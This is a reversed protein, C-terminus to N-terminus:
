HNFLGQYAIKMTETFEKPSFKSEIVEKALKTRRELEAPADKIMTLCDKLAQAFAQPQPDALFTYEETMVQTHSIINTAVCPKGSLMYSYVKLPTNCGETRPSVLLDALAMFAGMQEPPRSGAFVVSKDLGLSHSLEKMKVAQADGALGGVLLLKVAPLSGDGYLLAFSRLLLEIGQYSELNGTYVIVRDQAAFGFEQRLSAIDADSYEGTSTMPLDELTFAAVGPKIRKALNTIKDAVTIVLSAHKIYYAEFMEAFRVLAHDKSKTNYGFQEPIRSHMDYVYPVGYIASLIRACFVTEEVAHIVDYKEKKFQIAAKVFLLWDLLVKGWSFGIPVHSIFPVNFSRAIRVNKIQVDEGIHYVLLDVDYGLEGLTSVASKVRFPSGRYILFPQPVLFLVRKNKKETEM